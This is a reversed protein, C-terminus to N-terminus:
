YLKIVKMVFENVGALTTNHSSMYLSDDILGTQARPLISDHAQGRDWLIMVKFNEITRVYTLTM